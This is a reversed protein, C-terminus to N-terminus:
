VINEYVYIDQEICMRQSVIPFFNGEQKESINDGKSNKRKKKKKTKKKM